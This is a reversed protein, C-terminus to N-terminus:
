GPFTRPLLQVKGGFSKIFDKLRHKTEVGKEDFVIEEDKASFRIIRRGKNGERDILYAKWGKTLYAEFKKAAEEVEFPNSANWILRRDGTEDYIRFSFQDDTLEKEGIIFGGLMPKFIAIPNGELDTIKRGQRRAEIYKKKAEDIIPLSRPDFEIRISSQNLM